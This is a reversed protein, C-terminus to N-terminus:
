PKSIRSNIKDPERAHTLATDHGTEVLAEMVRSEEGSSIRLIPRRACILTEIEDIHASIM